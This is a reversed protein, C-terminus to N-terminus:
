HIASDPLGTHAMVDAGTGTAAVVEVGESIQQDIQEYIAADGSVVQSSQGGCISCGVILDGGCTGCSTDGPCKKAYTGPCDMIGSGICCSCEERRM